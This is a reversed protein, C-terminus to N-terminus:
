STRGELQSRGLFVVYLLALYAVEAVLALPLYHKSLPALVLVIVWHLSLAVASNLRIPFDHWRIIIFLGSLNWGYLSVMVHLTLFDDKFPGVAPFFYYLIYFIGTLATALLFIMGSVLFTKQQVPPATFLFLFFIIFVTFFLITAVVMEAVGLGLIIFVFFIIVGLNVFWFGVEKLASILPGSRETMFSFMLSMTILSVPFSYGLFFVELTLKEYSVLHLYENNLTVLSAFVIGISLCLLAAQNFKESVPETRSFFSLPILSFRRIRVWEVTLLLPVSIILMPIYLGAAALVAYALALGFYLRVRGTIKTGETFYLILSGGTLLNFLFIHLRKLSLPSDPFVPHLFGFLLASAMTAGFLLKAHKSM